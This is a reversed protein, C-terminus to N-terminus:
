LGEIIRLDREAADGLAALAAQYGPSQYAAVAREVSDFEILTTRERMGSEFTHAPTGRALFRGGAAHLAPGALEIYAALRDPDRVSRFTNIWYATAMRGTQGLWARREWRLAMPDAAAVAANFSPAGEGDVDAVHLGADLQVLVPQGDVGGLRHGVGVGGV